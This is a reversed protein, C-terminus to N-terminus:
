ERLITKLVFNFFIIIYFFILLINNKTNKQLKKLFISVKYFFSNTIVKEGMVNMKEGWEIKNHKRERFINISFM